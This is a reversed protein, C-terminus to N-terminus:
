PVASFRDLNEYISEIECAFRISSLEITDGRHLIEPVWLNDSKRQFREVVIQNQHVLIYEELTSITKYDSCPLRM